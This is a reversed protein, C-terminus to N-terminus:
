RANKSSQASIIIINVTGIIRIKGFINFLNSYVINFKTTSSERTRLTVLSKIFYRSSAKYTVPPRLNMIKKPVKIINRVLRLPDLEM